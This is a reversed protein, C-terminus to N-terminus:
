TMEKLMITLSFDAGRLNYFNGYFDYLRFQMMNLDRPSRWIKEVEHYEEYSKIYNLSSDLPIKFAMDNGVSDTAELNDVRDMNSGTRIELLCYIEGSLNITDISIIPIVGGVIPIVTDSYNKKDVIVSSFGMPIRASTGKKIYNDQSYFTNTSRLSDANVGTEFKLQFYENLGANINLKNTDPFSANVTTTFTYSGGSLVSESTLSNQIVSAFSSASYNGIPLTVTYDFLTIENIDVERVDIVNNQENINYDTKPIIAHLVKLAIINKYKENFKITFDYSSQWKLLDRQRSDIHIYRNKTCPLKCSNNFNSGDPYLKPYIIRDDATNSRDINIKREQVSVSTQINKPIQNTIQKKKILTKSVRKTKPNIEAM